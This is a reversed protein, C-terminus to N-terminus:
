IKCFKVQTTVNNLTTTLIYMGPKLDRIEGAHLYIEGKDTIDKEMIMHGLVDKIRLTVPMNGRNTIYIGGNDALPNPVIKVDVDSGGFELFRVPSYDFTGDTYYIKLRYYYKGSKNKREDYYSFPTEPKQTASVNVSALYEFALGPSKDNKICSEIDFRNVNSIESMKWVLFSMYTNYRSVDFSKLTVPLPIDGNPGGSNIYFESFSPVDFESYYGNAYPLIVVEPNEFFYYNGDNNALEGDENIGSYKTVGSRYLNKPKDSGTPATRLREAETETYYIRVKVTGNVVPNSPTIRFNRDLYYQHNAIRVDPEPNFYTFVSTNGLDQNANPKISAIIKNDSIFDTWGSPNVPSTVDVDPGTYIGKQQSIVINDIGIGPKNLGADSAFVVRFRVHSKDTIQSLPIELASTRWAQNTNDWVQVGNNNYGNYNLGTAGLKFWSIDNESYEIWAKDFNAEIDYILSLSLYPNNTFSSLDFCPSHLTSNELNNYLGTLSTTWCRVGSAADNILTKFPTGWAWSPNTGAVFWNGNNTEFDEMYPYTQIWPQNRISYHLTDNAPYSDGSASVWFDFDYLGYQSMDVSNITITTLTNADIIQAAGLIPSGNNIRYFLSVPLSSNGTNEVSLVVQTNAGLGCELTGPSLVKKLAVDNTTTFLYFNDLTYGGAGTPSTASQNGHQEIRVQFSSSPSQGNAQLIDAVPIGTVVKYVGPERQNEYLNYAEVWTALDNGRIWVKNQDPYATNNHNNYAFQLKIDPTNIYNDLNFTLDTHGTEETNFLHSDLTLSRTGRYTVSSNVFTRLRAASGLNDFDIRDNGEIGFTPITIDQVPTNEFGELFTTGLDGTLTIGANNLHRIETELANNALFNVDYASDIGSRIKYRGPASLDVTSTFQFDIQQGPMLTGPFSETYKTHNFIYFLDFGSAEQDSFNKITIVINEDPGLETSTHQRGSLPKKLGIIGLDVNSNCSGSNPIIARAVCRRGSGTANVAGVSFWYRTNIDLGSALYETSLTSDIVTMEPGDKKYIYYQSTNPVANWSLFAYGPCTDTLSFNQPIGMVPCNFSTISAQLGGLHEIKFKLRGSPANVVTWAKKRIGPNVQQILTWSAGNNDSYFLNFGLGQDDGCYWQISIEEGPVLSEGGFPNTQYIRNDLLEYAVSFPQPGMPVRKGRVRVTYSGAPPNKMSVQEINNISDIGPRAPENVAAPRYDLILPRHLSDNNDYVELDLDNVLQGIANLSAEWDTWCLMVRVSRTGAPIELGFDTYTNNDISSEIINGAAMARVARLIDLRGFGSKFDPGPNMIDDASNCLVAKVLASSPYAGYQTLYKQHLLAAAASVSPTSMSTGTNLYYGEAANCSNVNTGVAVIEPKLRGDRLPGKSSNGRVSDVDILKVINGVTLTNKSTQGGTLVNAWSGGVYGGCALGGSNGSAFMHAFENYIRVQNDAFQSFYDYGGTYDCSNAPVTAYSNNTIRVGFDQNYEPARTIIRQLDDIVANARPAIGEKSPDINGAGISTGTVHSAHNIDEQEDARMIVRDSHDPHAPYNGGDGIGITIGEGKLGFGGLSTAAKVGATSELMNVSYNLLTADHDSEQMHTVLDSQLISEIHQVDTTIKYVGKYELPTVIAGGRATIERKILDAPIFDPCKILATVASRKETYTKLQDAFASELKYEAPLNFITKIQDAYPLGSRVDSVPIGALYTNASLYEIFKWGALEYERRRAADPLQSFQVYKILYQAFTDSAELFTHLNNGQLQVPSYLGQATPVPMDSQAVACGVSLFFVVIFILRKVSVLYKLRVQRYIVVM